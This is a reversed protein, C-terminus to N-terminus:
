SKGQENSAAERIQQAIQQAQEIDRQQSAKHGGSLLLYDAVGSQMFYM